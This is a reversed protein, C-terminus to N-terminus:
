SKLQNPKFRKRLDDNSNIEEFLKKLTFPVNLGTTDLVIDNLLEPKGLDVHYLRRCRKIDDSQRSMLHKRTEKYLKSGKEVIKQEKLHGERELIRHIRTSLDATIWIKVTCPIGMSSAIAGFFKGELLMNPFYSMRVLFQDINTDIEPHKNVQNALYESLERKQTKNRMIEGADIRHLEWRQALIKAITSSGSGGPGGVVVLKGLDGPREINYTLM